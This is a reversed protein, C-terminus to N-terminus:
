FGRCRATANRVQGASAAAEGRPRSGDVPPAGDPQPAADPPAADPVEADAPAADPPEADPVAADICTNTGGTCNGTADCTTGGTCPDGDDCGTGPNELVINCGGTGDCTSSAQCVTATCSYSTGLCDGTADCTTTHTCPDGDDCGTGPNELVVNCGGTGDCTSSVECPGANCPVLTGVCDGTADCTTSPTCPDGDDCATGPNEMVINCGGTGDCTSSAECVLPTCDYTTGAVCTTADAGTCHDSYTCPNGDECPDTVTALGCIGLTDCLDCVEDCAVSCCVQNACYGSACDSPQTCSEGLGNDTPMSDPTPTTRLAFDFECRDRDRDEPVREASEGEGIVGFSTVPAWQNGDYEFVDVVTDALDLVLVQDGGNALQFNAGSWAGYAAMDSAAHATATTEFNPVFGFMAEFDSGDRTVVVEQLVGLASGAPGATGFAFAGEAAGPTEEDTVKWATLDIPDFSVNALVVFEELEVAGTPNPFVESVLVPAYVEGTTPDFWVDFFYDVFQDSVEDWTNRVGNVQGPFGYNAVVDLVDSAGLNRCDGNVESQCVAVSFRIPASPPASLGGLDQWPVRIEVVDNTADVTNVCAASAGDFFSQNYVRPQSVGEGFRTAVLYEWEAEAHVRTDSQCCLWEQGQTAQRDFDVAVQLM